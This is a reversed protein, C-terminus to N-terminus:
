ILGHEKAADAISGIFKWGCAEAYEKEDWTGTNYKGDKEFLLTPVKLGHNKNEHADIGYKIAEIKTM